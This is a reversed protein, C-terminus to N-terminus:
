PIRSQPGLAFRESLLWQGDITERMLHVEQVRSRIPLCPVIDARISAAITADFTHAITLHPIITPFSGGYPPAEPFQEALTRILAVFPEDPRPALFVVGPFERIEDLEYDFAPV